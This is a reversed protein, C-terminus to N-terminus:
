WTGPVQRTTVNLRDYLNTVGIHLVLVALAKEDWHDAARDRVADPVGEASDALRTMAEALEIAACEAESLYPSERWAAVSALRDESEGAKPAQRMGYEICWGYGNIQSVRLHVLELTTAPVGQGHALKGLEPLAKLAGPVLLAPNKARPTVARLHPTGSAQIDLHQALEQAGAERRAPGRGTM